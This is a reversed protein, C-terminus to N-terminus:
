ETSPQQAVRAPAGKTSTQQHKKNNNNNDNNNNDNINNNINNYTQQLKPLVTLKAM